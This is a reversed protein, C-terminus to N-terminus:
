KQYLFYRYRSILSIAYNLLASLSVHTLSISVCPPLYLCLSSPSTLYSTQQAATELSDPHRFFWCFYSNKCWALFNKSSELSLAAFTTM